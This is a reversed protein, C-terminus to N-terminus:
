QEIRMTAVGRIKANSRVLETQAGSDFRMFLGTEVGVDRWDAEVTVKLYRAGDIDFEEWITEYADSDIGARDMVENVAPIIQDEDGGNPIAARVGERAASQFNHELYFYYGFEVTGFALVLLLPLVLAAELIESGRRRTQRARRRVPRPTRSAPVEPNRRSRQM